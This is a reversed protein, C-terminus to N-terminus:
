LRLGEALIECLHWTLAEFDDQPTAQELQDLEHALIVALAVALDDRQAGSGCSLSRAFKEVVSLFESNESINNKDM